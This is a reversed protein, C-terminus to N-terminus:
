EYLKRLAPELVVAHYAGFVVIIRSHAEMNEIIMRLMLEDIYATSDAWIHKYVNAEPESSPGLANRLDSVREPSLEINAIAKVSRLANAYSYDFGDWDTNEKLKGLSGTVFDKFTPRSTEQLRTYMYVQRLVIWVAIEEKSYGRELLFAIQDVQNTAPSDWEIRREEAQLISFGIEARKNIVEDLSQVKIEDLYQQKKEPDAAVSVGGIILMDPQFDEFANRLQGFMPSQPDTAHPAGFFYLEKDDKKLQYTYPMSYNLKNHEDVAMIAKFFTDTNM